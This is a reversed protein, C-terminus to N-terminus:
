LQVCEKYFWWMYLKDARKNQAYIIKRNNITQQYFGFFFICFSLFYKWANVKTGIEVRAM